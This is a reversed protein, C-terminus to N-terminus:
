AEEKDTRDEGPAAFRKWFRKLRETLRPEAGLSGPFFFRRPQPLYAQPVWHRPDDHPYRYGSGQPHLHHPVELRDGKRLAAEAERIALYTSNSKPAAALYVAAESLIQDAEPLGVRDCASAASEALVLAFPDALGVDEAAFICMRRALFRVDDGAELMRAMWYLAADPDSGRLSKIFASVVAYHDDGSRDYRQLARGTVREVMEEDLVRGGGVAVAQVCAELRLLAQRADGGSRAALEGLVADSAAVELRGLGRVPDELARRLLLLLHRDELPQLTYVLMRSLLTKNIEFWPNETTTGVLVLDGTEVAPLLANQQQTNFHYIEDVFALASQGGRARKLERAQEVMERLQAVKASVANIELLPRDTVQALLRVLTTKGVGPPGYLICSPVLNRDLLRRLPGDPGVLHEQGVYDELSAPRMREALPTEFSSLSVDKGPEEGELGDFIGRTRTM